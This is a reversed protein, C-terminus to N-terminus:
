ISEWFKKPLSSEKEGIFFKEGAISKEVMDAVEKKAKCWQHQRLYRPDFCNARGTYLKGFVDANDSRVQNVQDALDHNRTAIEAASKEFEAAHDYKRELIQKKWKDVTNVVMQRHMTRESDTLNRAHKIQKDLLKQKEIFLDFEVNSLRAESHVVELFVLQILGYISNLELVHMYPIQKFVQAALGFNDVVVNQLNTEPRALRDAVCDADKACAAIIQDLDMPQKAQELGFGDMNRQDVAKMLQLLMINGNARLVKVRHAFDAADDTTQLPNAKMQLFADRELLLTKESLYYGSLATGTQFPNQAFVDLHQGADQMDAQIRRMYGEYDDKKKTSKMELLNEHKRDWWHHKGHERHYRDIESELHTNEDELQAMPNKIAKAVVVRRTDALLMWRLSMNVLMQAQFEKEANSLYSNKKVEDITAMTQSAMVNYQAELLKQEVIVVDLYLLILYQYTNKIENTNLFKQVEFIGKADIVMNLFSYNVLSQNLGTPTCGHSADCESSLVGEIRNMETQLDALAPDEQVNKRIQLLTQYLARKVNILYVYYINIEGLDQPDYGKFYDIVAKVGQIGYTTIYKSLVGAMMAVPVNGTMAAAISVGAGVLDGAVQEMVPKQDDNQGTQAAHVVQAVPMIVAAHVLILVVFWRLSKM